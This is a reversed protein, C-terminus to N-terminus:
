LSSSAGPMSFTSKEDTLYRSYPAAGIDTSFSFFAIASQPGIM